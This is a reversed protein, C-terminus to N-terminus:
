ISILQTDKADYRCIHLILRNVAGDRQYIMKESIRRVLQIGLGGTKRSEVIREIDPAPATTPDFPHGDDEIVIELLNREVRIRIHILHERDDDYGYKIINSAMEEIALGGSYKARASLPLTALWDFVQKATSAM